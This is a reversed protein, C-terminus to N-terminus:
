SKPEIKLRAKKERLLAEVTNHRVHALRAAGRATGVAEWCELIVEDSVKPYKTM